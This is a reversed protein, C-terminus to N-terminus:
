ILSKQLIIEGKQNIVTVYLLNREGRNIGLINVDENDKLFNIVKDNFIGPRELNSNSNISISCHFSINEMTYRRDKIYDRDAKRYVVAGSNLLTMAESSIDKDKDNLYRFIEMYLKDDIRNGNRDNYNVLISGKKHIFTRDKLPKRFFIQAGGNLRIHKKKLNEESFLNELFLTTSKKNKSKM